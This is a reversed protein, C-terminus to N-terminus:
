KFQFSYLNLDLTWLSSFRASYLHSALESKMSVRLSYLFANDTSSQTLFSTLAFSPAKTSFYFTPSYASFNLLYALKNSSCAMLSNTLNPSSSFDKEYIFYSFDSDPSYITWPITETIWDNISLNLSVILPSSSYSILDALSKASKLVLKSASYSDSLYSYSAFALNKFEKYFSLSNALSIKFLFFSIRVFLM